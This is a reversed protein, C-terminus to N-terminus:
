FRAWQQAQGINFAAGIDAQHQERGRSLSRRFRGSLRLHLVVALERRAVAEYESM